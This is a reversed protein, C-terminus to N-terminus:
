QLASEAEVTGIPVRGHQQHHRVGFQEVHLLDIPPPMLDPVLAVSRFTEKGFHVRPLRHHVHVEADPGIGTQGAACHATHM